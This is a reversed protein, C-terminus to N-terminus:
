LVIDKPYEFIDSAYRKRYTTHRALLDVNQVNFDIFLFEDKGERRTGRGVYQRFQIESMGGCFYFVVMPGPPHIDTGTGICSTGLLTSFRGQNFEEVLKNPDSKHLHSPLKDANGKKSLDEKTVGGHALRYDVNLNNIIHNVQGLEEIMILVYRGALAFKTALTGVIQGIEPNNLLHVRTMNNPDSSFYDINSDINIMRFNPKALYGEEVGQRVPMTYVVDGIISKLLLDLGDNRLQTGSFFFRWPAKAALGPIWKSYEELKKWKGLCVKALTEAPTLHSEDSIFVQCESLDLWAKSGPNIRTLSQGTAITILKDSQKKNDFYQGVYKKGLHDLHSKYLQEAISISPAMITTKLGLNRSLHLIIHSKGLGTGMEVSAHGKALLNDYAEVQYSRPAKPLQLWPIISPPPRIIKNPLDVLFKEQLFSQLGAYTWLAGQEDQFLLTQDRLDLLRRYEEQYGEEGLRQLQWPSNKFRKLQYDIRKDKYSLCTNLLIGQISPPIPLLVPDHAM